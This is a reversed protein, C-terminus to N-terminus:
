ADGETYVFDTIAREVAAAVDSSTECRQAAQVALDALQDRENRSSGRGQLVRCAVLPKELSEAVAALHKERIEQRNGREFATQLRRGMRGAVESLMGRVVTQLISRNADDSTTDNGTADTGTEDGGADGDDPPTGSSKGNEVKQPDKTPAAAARQPPLYTQGVGGIQPPMDSDARCEDASWLGAFRMQTYLQGRSRSDLRVLDRRRFKIEHSEDDKEGERLLKDDCETEWRCLWPDLTEDLYNQDEMELSAYATRADDGLKSASMNLWNAVDRVNYKRSELLQADAASLSVPNAKAGNTLIGPRHAREASRHMQDWQRLTEKVASEKMANPFELVVSPIASNRFFRSGYKQQALGEGITNRGQRIASYGILGDYGLGKLHLVDEAKFFEVNGRIVTTYWLKSATVDAVGNPYYRVPWTVHPLLPWLTQVEAAGNREIYGYGNGVAIAHGTLTEKFTFATMQPNAKRRLPRYAPHDRDVSKNEGGEHLEHVLLPTKAVASSILNVGRWFAGLTMATRHNVREGSESRISQMGDYLWEEADLPVAPNEISRRSILRDLLM